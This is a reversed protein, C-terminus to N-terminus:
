VGLIRFRSMEASLYASWRSSEIVGYNFPKSGIGTLDSKSITSFTKVSISEVPKPLLSQLKKAASNRLRANFDLM